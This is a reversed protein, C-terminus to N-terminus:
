AAGSLADVLDGTQFTCFHESGHKDYYIVRSDPGSVIVKCRGDLEAVEAPEGNLADKLKSTDIWFRTAGTGHRVFLLSRLGQVNLTVEIKERCLVRRGM